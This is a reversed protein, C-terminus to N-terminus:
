PVRLDFATTGGRQFQQLNVAGEFENSYVITGGPVPIDRDSKGLDLRFRLKTKLTGGYRPAIVNWYQGPQLSVRHFGVACDRPGTGHPMREIPQWDGKENQAEQILYLHSDIASFAVREGSRNVIRVRVGAQNGVRVSEDTEVVVALKEPEGFKDQDAIKKAFNYSPGWGGKREGLQGGVTYRAYVQYQVDVPEPPAPDSKTVPVDGRAATMPVMVLSACLIRFTQM